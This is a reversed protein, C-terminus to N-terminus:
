SRSLSCSFTFRLSSASHAVCISDSSALGGERRLEKLLLHTILFGSIVFFVAVGQDGHRFLRNFPIRDLWESKTHELIVAFVSLAQLGDLSPIARSNEKRTEM